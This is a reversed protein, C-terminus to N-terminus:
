KRSRKKKPWTRGSVKVALDRWNRSFLSPQKKGTPGVTERNWGTIKREDLSAHAMARALRRPHFSKKEKM